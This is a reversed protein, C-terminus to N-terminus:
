TRSQSTGASTPAPLPPLSVKAVVAYAAQIGTMDPFPLQLTLLEWLVLAFSYVDVACGYAKGALVQGVIPREHPRAAETADYRSEGVVLQVRM